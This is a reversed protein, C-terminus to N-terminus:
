WLMLRNMQWAVSIKVTNVLEVIGIVIKSRTADLDAIIELYAMLGTM